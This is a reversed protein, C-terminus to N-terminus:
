FALPPPVCNLIHPCRFYRRGECLSARCFILAVGLLIKYSQRKYQRNSRSCYHIEPTGEMIGRVNQSRDREPSALLRQVSYSRNQIDWYQFALRGEDSNKPPCNDRKGVRKRRGHLLCWFTSMSLMCICCVAYLHWFDQGNQNVTKINKNVQLPIRKSLPHFEENCFAASETVLFKM